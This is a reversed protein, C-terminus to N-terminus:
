LTTSQTWRGTKRDIRRRSHRPARRSGIVGPEYRGDQQSRRAPRVLQDIVEALSVATIGAGGMRLEAEVESAAPEGALAAILAYTDLSRRQGM